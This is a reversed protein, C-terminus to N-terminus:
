TRNSTIRRRRPGAISWGPSGDSRGGRRLMLAVVGSSRRCAGWVSAGCRGVGAALLAGARGTTLVAVVGAALLAGM